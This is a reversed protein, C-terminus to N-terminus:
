LGEFGTESNEVDKEEIDAFVVDSVEEYTDLKLKGDCDFPGDAKPAPRPWVPFIETRFSLVAKVRKEMEQHELKQRLAEMDDGTFHVREIGQKAWEDAKSEQPAAAAGGIKARVNSINRLPTRGADIKNGLPAIKPKPTASPLQQKNTINSLKPRQITAPPIVSKGSMPAANEDQPNFRPAVRTAM